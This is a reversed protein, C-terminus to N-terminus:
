PFRFYTNNRAEKEKEKNKIYTEDDAKTAKRVVKKLPTVIESDDLEKNALVVEGYELGRATEVVANEGISLKLGNPAFYYMNGSEKFRVGVVETM